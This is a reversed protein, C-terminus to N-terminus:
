GLLLGLLLTVVGLGGLGVGVWGIRAAIQQRSALAQAARAAEAHPAVRQVEALWWARRCAAYQMVGPPTILPEPPAAQPARRPPAPTKLRTKM